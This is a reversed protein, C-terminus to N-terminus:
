DDSRYVVTHGITTSIVNFDEDLLVEDGAAPTFGVIRAPTTSAMALIEAVSANTATRMSRVMHPMSAASGALDGAENRVEPGVVTVPIDGLEYAGDGMGLAAIADTVLAIRDSGLTQHALRLMAPHVHVGDAILGATSTPHTLAAAALGPSRHDLGSMANFLHTVHTAGSSLAQDAMDATCASHGLAVVVGAARLHMMVEDARPLEPALTVMRPPGAEIWREVLEMDPAMLRERRHTGRRDPALFPGELHLGFPRAGVWGVPPGSAVMRLAALTTEPASSVVTPLFATVGHEPLRSAVEWISDPRSTFDHGFGGNIQLDVFGSIRHVAPDAGSM